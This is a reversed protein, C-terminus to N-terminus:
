CKCRAPASAKPKTTAFEPRLLKGDKNADASAFRESTAAAWEEFTLLNDGNGDLKKFAKTRSSMLEIRSIADDRNRDYRNFRQQERTVKLAEPPNPPPAGRTAANEDPVPLGEIIETPPPPPLIVEEQAQLQWFLLGSGTLAIAALGGAVFKQV